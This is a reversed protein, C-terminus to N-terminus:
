AKVGIVQKLLKLENNGMNSIVEYKKVDYVSFREPKLDVDNLAIFDGNRFKKLILYLVGLDSKLFDGEKM